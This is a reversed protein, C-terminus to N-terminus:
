RPDPCRVRGVRDAVRDPRRHREGLRHVDVGRAILGLELEVDGASGFRCAVLAARAGGGQHEGPRHRVVALVRVADFDPRVLEGEVAARDPLGARRGDVGDEVVDRHGRVAAVLHVAHAGVRDLM